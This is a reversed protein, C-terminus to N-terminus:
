KKTPIDYGNDTIIKNAAEPDIEYRRWYDALYADPLPKATGTSKTKRANVSQDKKAENREASM